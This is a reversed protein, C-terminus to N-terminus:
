CAALWIGAPAEAELAEVDLHDEEKLDYAKAFETQLFAQADDVFM